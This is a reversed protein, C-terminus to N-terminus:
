RIAEIAAAFGDPCLGPTLSANQPNKVRFFHEYSRLQSVAQVWPDIARLAIIVAGRNMAQEVLHNGYLRSPLTPAKIWWRRSRYGFLEIVLTKHAVVEWGRAGAQRLARPARWWAAGDTRSMSPDLLYFPWRTAQHRANDLAADRFQADAHTGADTDGVGPNKNLLV